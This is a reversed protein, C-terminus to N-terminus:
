YGRQVLTFAEKGVQSEVVKCYLDSTELLERHSVEALLIGDDLLLIHDSAMTTSIKQTIMVTTCSLESLAELLKAETKMDLASTSDDLLLITPKRM